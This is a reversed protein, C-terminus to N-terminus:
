IIGGQEITLTEATTQKENEDGKEKTVNTESEAIRGKSAAFVANESPILASCSKHIRIEGFRIYPTGTHAYAEDGKRQSM